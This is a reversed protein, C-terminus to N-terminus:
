TTRLNPDNELMTVVREHGELAEARTQYRWQLRSYGPIHFVMTEFLCDGIPQGLFITSVFGDPSGCFTQRINPALRQQMWVDLDDTPVPDGNDDLIYLLEPYREEM